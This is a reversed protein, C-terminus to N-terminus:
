LSKGKCSFSISYHVSLELHSFSSFIASLCFPLLFVEHSHMLLISFFRSITCFFFTVVVCLYPLQQFGVPCCTGPRDCGEILVAIMRFILVKATERRSWVAACVLVKWVGWRQAPLRLFHPADASREGSLTAGLSTKMSTLLERLTNESHRHWGGWIVSQVCLVM